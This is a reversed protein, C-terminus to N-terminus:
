EVSKEVLNKDLATGNGNKLTANGEKKDVIVSNLNVITPICRRVVLLLVCCFKYMFMLCVHGSLM